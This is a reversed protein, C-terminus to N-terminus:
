EKGGVTDPPSSTETGGASPAAHVSPPVPTCPASCTLIEHMQETEWSVYNAM